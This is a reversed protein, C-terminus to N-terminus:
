ERYHIHRSTRKVAKEEGLLEADWAEELFSKFRRPPPALSWGEYMHTDIERLAIVIVLGVSLGIVLTILFAILIGVLMDM